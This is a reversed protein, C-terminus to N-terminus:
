INGEAVSAYDISAYDAAGDTTLGKLIAEARDARAGCPRM